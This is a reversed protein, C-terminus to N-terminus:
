ARPHFKDYARKLSVFDLHTYIQTTILSSHGLMIQLARLDAGGELLHTAFSHRLVHPSIKGEDLGAKKAYEKIIQWCRQRTLPFGRRNLFVFNRSKSSLFLPRVEELFKVLFELAIEGLPIIREKNGKGLVRIFGISLQLNELKLNVLESIRLGTAYLLELMTRDRFGIPHSLDPAQLLREVEELTLIKPLRKPLKPSELFTLYDVSYGKEEYLFLLFNRLTSLRRAISFPNFGRDKLDMLYDRIIEYSLGEINLANKTLYSLFDELDSAYARLTNLSYNKQSNLYVLFEKLLEEM